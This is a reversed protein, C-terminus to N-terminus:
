RACGVEEPTIKPFATIRSMPSVNYVETGLEAFQKAYGDFQKAWNIYSGAGTNGKAGKSWPYPPYWHADGKPSLCMDFGFLFVQKPTMQYGLNFGCAGSSFGNLQGPTSSLPAGRDCEFLNAWPVEDLRAEKAEAINRLSSRRLHADIELEAMQAWREETWKRDMSVIWDPRRNVMYLFADNIGIVKGPLKTHDCQAFSWGGGVISLVPERQM